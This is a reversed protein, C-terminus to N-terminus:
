STRMYASRRIQDLAEFSGIAGTLGKIAATFRKDLRWLGVRVGGTVRRVSGIVGLSYRLGCITIRRTVHAIPQAGTM